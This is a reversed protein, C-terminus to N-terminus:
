SKGVISYQISCRKTNPSEPSKITVNKLAVCILSRCKSSLPFVVCIDETECFYDSYKFDCIHSARFYYILYTNMATERINLGISHVLELNLISYFLRTYTWFTIKAYEVVHLLSNILSDPYHSPLIKWALSSWCFSLDSLLPKFKSWMKSIVADEPTWPEHHAVTSHTSTNWANHAIRLASPSRRLSWMADSPTISSFDPIQVAMNRAEPVYISHLLWNWWNCWPRILRPIPRALIPLFQWIFHVYFSSACRSRIPASWFMEGYPPSLSELPSLSDVAVAIGAALPTVLLAVAVLSRTSQRACCFLSWKHFPQSCISCKFQFHMRIRDASGLWRLRCQIPRAPIPLVQEFFNIDSLLCLPLLFKKSHRLLLRVTCDRWLSYELSCIFKWFKIFNKQKIQRNYKSGNNHMDWHRM